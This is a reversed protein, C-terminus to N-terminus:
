DGFTVKHILSEFNRAFRRGDCLPSAMMRERMSARIESLRAPNQSMAVARAVYDDEDIAVWDTLGTNSLHSFAHRGAFTSHPWTITPVGMWLAELTTLGGSYPFTDLAIDVDRYQDMMAVVSNAMRFSTRGGCGASELQNEVRSRNGSDLWGSYCLILRSRPVLQLIRSWTRLVEVNVKAPNCMAGFSVHGSRAFAPLSVSPAKEPPTYTVYDDPMRLIREHYYKEAGIPVHFRDALLYDMANVGTTGVYGAWTIQVPAAREAFVLLRNRATHGALDILVDIRDSEIRQRLTLDSWGITDHWRDVNRKIRDGLPDTGIRDSYITTEMANRDIHDFLGATLYGVPHLGLDASVFGIRIKRKKPHRISHEITRPRGTTTLRAWELHEALLQEPSIGPKYQLAMLLAQNAEHFQGRRSAIAQRYTSEAEAHRGLCLLLGGRVAQEESGQHTAAICQEIRDLGSTPCGLKREIEALQLQAKTFTPSRALALVYCNRANALDGQQSARLGMAALTRTDEGDLIRAKSIWKDGEDFDGRFFRISALQTLADIHDPCLSIAQRFASESDDMQRCRRCVIGRALWLDVNASCSEIARQSDSQATDLENLDLAIRIMSLWAATYGPNLETARRHSEYGKRSLGKAQLSRGLHFHSEADGPNLRISTQYSEIAQDLRGARRCVVGMNRAIVHDTPVISFASGVLDIARTHEGRESAVMGMLHMADVHGPDIRLIKQYIVEARDFEKGQHYSVAEQLARAISQEHAAKKGDM